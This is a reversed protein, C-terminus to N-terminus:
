NQPISPFWTLHKEFDDPAHCFNQWDNLYKAAKPHQAHAYCKFLFRQQQPLLGKIITRARKKLEVDDLQKIRELIEGLIHVESDFYKKSKMQEYSIEWIEQISTPRVNICKNLLQTMFLEHFGKIDDILHNNETAVKIMNTLMIIDDISRQKKQADLQIQFHEKDQNQSSRMQFLTWILVGLSVTTLLPGYVGGLYSGFASWKNFDHSLGNHFRYIYIVLPASFLLFLCLSVIYNKRIIKITDNIIKM